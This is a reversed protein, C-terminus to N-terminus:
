FDKVTWFRLHERMHYIITTIPFRGGFMLRFRHKLCGVNPITVFIRKANLELIDRMVREADPIHEIVEMVTIVGWGGNVQDRLSLDPDIVQADCGHDCAFRVAETSTDLGLSRCSPKIQALYRQFSGDGCGIDLVSEGADILSGIVKFRDMERIIVGDSTRLRWYDNYDSFEELPAPRNIYEYLRSLIRLGPIKSLIDM